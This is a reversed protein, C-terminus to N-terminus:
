IVYQAFENPIVVEGSFETLAGERCSDISGDYVPLHVLVLKRARALRAVNGAQAGNSHGESVISNAFNCEHILVDSDKAFKILQECPSTDSSYTLTGRTFKNIIKVAVTPLGHVVPTSFVSLAKSRVIEYDPIFPFANIQLFGEVLSRLDFLDILSNIFSVNDETTFLKLPKKRKLLGLGQLLSPLGYVHDPHRHTIILADLNHPDIGVKQIKQLPSGGCDILASFDSSQVALSTTDHDKNPIAGSIGLVSVYISTM